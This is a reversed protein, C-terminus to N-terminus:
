EQVVKYIFTQEGAVILQNGAASMSQRKWEPSVSIGEAHFAGIRRWGTTSSPKFVFVLDDEIAYSYPDGMAVGHVAAYQRNTDPDMSIFTNLAVRDGHRDYFYVGAPRAIRYLDGDFFAVEGIMLKEEDGEMVIPSSFNTNVFGDIFASQVPNVGTWDYLFTGENQTRFTVCDNLQLGVWLTSGDLEVSTGYSNGPFNNTRDELYMKQQWEGNQEEFGFVYGVQENPAEFCSNPHPVSVVIRQGDIAIDQFTYPPIEVIKRLSDPEIQLTAEYGWEGRTHNFVDIVPRGEASYSITVLRDQDLALKSAAIPAGDKALEATQEWSNGLRSYVLTQEGTSVVAVQEGIVVDQSFGYILHSNVM